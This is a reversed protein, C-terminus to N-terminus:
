ASKSIIIKQGLQWYGVTSERGLISVKTVMFKYFYSMTVM